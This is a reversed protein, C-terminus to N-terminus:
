RKEESRMGDRARVRGHIHGRLDIFTLSICCRDSVQVVPTESSTSFYRQAPKLGVPGGSRAYCLAVASFSGM